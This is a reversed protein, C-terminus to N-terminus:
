NKPRLAQLPMESNCDRTNPPNSRRRDEWWATHQEKGGKVGSAAAQPGPSPPVLDCDPLDLGVPFCLTARGCPASSPNSWPGGPGQARARVSDSHRWTLAPPSVGSFALSHPM